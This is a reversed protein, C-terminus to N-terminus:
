KFSDVVKDMERLLRNEIKTVKILYKSIIDDLIQYVYSKDSDPINKVIDEILSISDYQVRHSFAM